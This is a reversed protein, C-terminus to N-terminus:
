WGSPSEPHPSIASCWPSRPVSGSNTSCLKHRRPRSRVTRQPDVRGAGSDVLWRAMALGIGGLGGTLIYAGDPRVVTDSKATGLTARSLRKVYRNEDRWAIVDDGSALGLETTLPTM